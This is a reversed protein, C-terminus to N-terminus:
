WRMSSSAMWRASANRSSWRGGVICKTSAARAQPLTDMDQRSYWPKRAALTAPPRYLPVTHRATPERSEENGRSARTSLWRDRDAITSSQSVDAGAQHERVQENHSRTEGLLMQAAATLRERLDTNDGVRQDLEAFLTQRFLTTLAQGIRSEENRALIGISVTIKRPRIRKHM